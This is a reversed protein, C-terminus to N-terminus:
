NNNLNKEDKLDYSYYYALDNGYVYFEYLDNTKIFNIPSSLEVEAKILDEFTQVKILKTKIEPKELCNVIIDNNNQLIKNIFKVNINENSKQILVVSLIILLVISVFDCFIAFVLWYYNVKNEYITEMKDISTSPTYNHVINLTGTSQVPIYTTLTERYSFTEGNLTNKFSPYNNIIYQVKIKGSCPVGSLKSEIEKFDTVFNKYNIVVEKNLNVTNKNKSEVDFQSIFDPTQEGYVKQLIQGEASEVILEVKVTNRFKFHNDLSNAYLLANYVISVDEILHSVYFDSKYYNGDNNIFVGNDDTLKVRDAVSKQIRANYVVDSKSIKFNRMQSILVPVSIIILVFVVCFLISLTQKDKKIYELFRKM